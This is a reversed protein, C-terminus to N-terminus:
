APPLGIWKRQQAWTMPLESIFRAVGFRESVKHELIAGIVEPAVFALPLVMRVYRPTRNEARAIEDLDRVRGSMLDDAWARAKAIAVLLTLRTDARMPVHLADCSQEPVFIERRVRGRGRFEPVSILIGEGSGDRM